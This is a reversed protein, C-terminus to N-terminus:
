DLPAGGDQLEVVHDLYVRGTKGCQECRAGREAIVSSRLQKWAQSGYLSHAPNPPPKAIRVDLIPLRPRLMKLRGMDTVKRQGLVRNEARAQHTRGRTTGLAVLM